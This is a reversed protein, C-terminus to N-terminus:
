SLAAKFTLLHLLLHLNKENYQKLDIQKANLPAVAVVHQAALGSRSCLCLNFLRSSPM